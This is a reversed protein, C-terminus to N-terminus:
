SRASRRKRGYEATTAHTGTEGTAGLIESAPRAAGKEIERCHRQLESKMVSIYKALVPGGFKLALCYAANQSCGLTLAVQRFFAKWEKEVSLPVNEYQKKLLPKM